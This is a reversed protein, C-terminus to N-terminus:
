RKANKIAREYDSAKLLVTLKAWDVSFLKLGGPVYEMVGVGVYGRNYSTDVLSIELQGNIYLNITSGYAVVRVINWDNENWVDATAVQVISTTVGDNKFLAPHHMGDMDAVFQYGPYLTANDPDLNSGGIRFYLCTEAWGDAEMKMRVSFDIDTYKGQSKYINVYENAIGRTNVETAATNWIGNVVSWGDLKNTFNSTFSPPVVTFTKYASWDWWVGAVMARARWKYVQFKLTVAPTNSCVSTGCASSLMVKDLVKTTGTFVQFQYKTASTVKTWSYAPKRTVITNMPSKLTPIVSAGRPSTDAAAQGPPVLSGIGLIWLTVVILFSRIFKIM